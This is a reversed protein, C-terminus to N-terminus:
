GRSRRVVAFYLLQPALARGSADSGHVRVRYLGGGIPNGTETLIDWNVSRGDGTPLARVLAGNPKLIQIFASPPANIFRVGPRPAETTLTMQVARPNRARVPLTRLPPDLGRVGSVVNGTTRIELVRSLAEALAPDRHVAQRFAESAERLRGDETLLTGLNFRAVALGPQEALARRYAEEAENPRGQAQLFDAYEARIWALAPQLALARRYLHDIAAPARGAREYARALARLRDPHNSDGRVSQELARIAADTRGLQEYAVGLFFHADDRTTHKELARDLAAAADALARGDNAQTAYVIEGMGQSLKAEPGTRDREYYPEIPREYNRRTTSQASRTTAVRIWHDTFMGHPVGREKVTPMHCSVCDATPRHAARSESRALRQELVASTHCSQCTQSRTQADAASSHPDHCTACELPRSTTRTALFCASQRLRDAHSVIDIGGSVKFFAAYDRLPQSPVYSFADKGERLVTVATHVHCQECVDLRRELPLRAPNVISNDHVSDRETATRRETVHLAGPGHCRECGIGPRLEAYKGELFPIPDPYSSHCAICRDPMLRDFRANNIEYGPSFDWGHTRYWTLPLQFLRGNEETFYSRAVRGSGMVYDMRKRLEHLRKGGPGVVFEVQYLQGRDEAVSYHLGTPVHYLPTDLPTEIRTDPTWRHFSSAMAHLRYASAADAHCTTCAADGVYSTPTAVNRFLPSPEDAQNNPTRSEDARDCGALVVVTSLFLRLLPTVRRV